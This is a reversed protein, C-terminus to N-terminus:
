YLTIDLGCVLMPQGRYPNYTLSISFQGLSDVHNKDGSSVAPM